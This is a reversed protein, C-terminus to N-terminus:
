KKKMKEKVVNMKEEFNRININVNGITEGNNSKIFDKLIVMIEKELETGNELIYSECKRLSGQMENNALNFKEIAEQDNMFLDYLNNINFLQEFIELARNNDDKFTHNFIDNNKPINLKLDNITTLLKDSSYKVKPKNLVIDKIKSRDIQNYIEDFIDNIVMRLNELIKFDIYSEFLVNNDDEEKLSHNTQHRITEIIKFLSAKYNEKSYYRNDDAVYEQSIIKEFKDYGKSKNFYEKSDQIAIILNYISACYLKYIREREAFTDIFYEKNEFDLYVKSLTNSMAIFEQVNLIKKIQKNTYEM